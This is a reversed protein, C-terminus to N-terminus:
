LLAPRIAWMRELLAMDKKRPASASNVVAWWLFSGNATWDPAWRQQMVYEVVGSLTRADVGPDCCRSVLWAADDRNRLKTLAPMAMLVADALPRQGRGSDGFMLIQEISRKCGWAAPMAGDDAADALELLVRLAGLNRQKLAGDVQDHMRWLRDCGDVWLNRLLWECMRRDREDDGGVLRAANLMEDVRFDDLARMASERARETLSQRRMASAVQAPESWLADLARTWGRAFMQEVHRGLFSRLSDITVGFEHGPHRLISLAADESGVSVCATLVLAAKDAIPLEYIYGWLRAVSVSAALGLAADLWSLRYEVIEPHIAKAAASYAALVQEADADAVAVGAGRTRKRGATSPACLGSIHRMLQLLDGNGYSKTRLARVFMDPKEAVLALWGLLARRVAAPPADDSLERAHGCLERMVDPSADLYDGLRVAELTREPFMELADDAAAWARGATGAKVAAIATLVMRFSDAGAWAVVTSLDWVVPPHRMDDVMRRLLGLSAVSDDLLPGAPVEVADDGLKVLM